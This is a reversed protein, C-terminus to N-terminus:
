AALPPRRGHFRQVTDFVTAAFARDTALRKRARHVLVRCAGTSALGLRHAVSTTPLGATDVAILAVAMRVDSRSGSMARELDPVEVDFCEVVVDCVTRLLDDEISRPVELEVADPHALRTRATTNERHRDADASDGDVFRQMRTRDADFLETFFDTCLWPFPSPLAPDSVFAGLSSWPYAHLPGGWGADRANAHIYRFLWRHHRDSQVIESHFRGRFIPGDHGHRDNSGRTFRESLFKMAESIQGAHSRVLLHYHNGVLCFLHVEVGFRRELEGVLELFHRRDRDDLFVTQHRAGRNM